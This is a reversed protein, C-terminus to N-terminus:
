NSTDLDRPYELYTGLDRNEDDVVLIQNDKDVRLM